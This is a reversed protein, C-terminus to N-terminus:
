RSWRARAAKRARVVREGAPLLKGGEAVLRLGAKGRPTQAVEKRHGREAFIAFLVTEAAHEFAELEEAPLSALPRASFAAVAKGAARLAVPDRDPDAKRPATM